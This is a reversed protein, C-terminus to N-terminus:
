LQGRQPIAALADKVLRPILNRRYEASGRVDDVPDALSVLENSFTAVADDSMQASHLAQEAPQNRIPFPGCGGIAVRISVASSETAVSVACSAVAYDGSIRAVKRYASHGTQPSPLLIATIIEAPELATEYWDVLFDCIPLTREGGPGALEIVADVCMLAALYDAAPDANALSGGMTGMNRVPVNAIAQASQRVVALTGSLMECAATDCHRTMAGIRIGGDPAQSIGQLSNIRELSIFAEVEVLGANKMAILTAGGALPFSAPTDRLMQIADQVSTPRRLMQNINDTTPQKDSLTQHMHGSKDAQSHDSVPDEDKVGVGIRKLLGAMRSTKSGPSADMETVPSEGRIAARFNDAFEDGIGEVYKRMVGLGFKGLRGSISVDSQYEVRTNDKDLATLRVVNEANIQSARTGEQGSTRSRVESPPNESLIEVKLDFRAKIVGIGVVVVANYSAPDVEAISECGPICRAMLSPDTIQKWVTEAPASVEFSGELHM